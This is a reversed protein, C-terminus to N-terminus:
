WHYRLNQCSGVAVIDMENHYFQHAHTFAM